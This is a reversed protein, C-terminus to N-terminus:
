RKETGYSKQAVKAHFISLECDIEKRHTLYMLMQEPMLSPESLERYSQNFTELSLFDPLLQLSNTPMIQTMTNNNSIQTSLNKTSSKQLM